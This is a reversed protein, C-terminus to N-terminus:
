YARKWRGNAKAKEIETMGSPMMKGEKILRKAHGVNIKSWISNKRRPCVWWLAYKENGKRAPGTIWGYSLLVDLLEPGSIAKVGSNKKYMRVWIGNSKDYNKSLWREFYRGSRFSLIKKRDVIM